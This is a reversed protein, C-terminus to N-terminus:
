GCPVVHPTYKFCDDKIKYYYKDTEELKPAKIVICNGDKCVRKFVAALGLGLIVSIIISGVKDNLVKDVYMKTTKNTIKM